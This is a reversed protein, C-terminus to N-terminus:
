SYLSNKSGTSKESMQRRLLPIPVSSFREIEREEKKGSEPYRFPDNKSEKWEARLSKHREAPVSSATQDIEKM